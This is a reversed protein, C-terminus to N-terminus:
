TASTALEGETPMATAYFSYTGAASVISGDVDCTGTNGGAAVAIDGGFQSFAGDSPGKKFCEVTLANNQTDLTVFTIKFNNQNTPSKPQSLRISTFGSAAFVQSAFVLVAAVGIFSKIFGKFM